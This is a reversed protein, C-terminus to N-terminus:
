FNIEATNTEENWVVTAGMAEAAARLPIYTRGGMAMASVDLERFNGNISYISSGIAFVIRQEASQLVVESSSEVWEVGYGLKEAVARIPILTREDMAAPPTDSIVKEGNILIKIEGPEYSLSQLFPEANYKKSPNESLVFTYIKGNKATAYVTLFYKEYSFGQSYLSHDARYVYYTTGNITEEAYHKQLIVCSVPLNNAESILTSLKGESYTADFADFFAQKTYAGEFYAKTKHEVVVDLKTNGDKSSFSLVGDYNGSLELGDPIQYKIGYAKDVITDAYVGSCIFLASIIVFLFIIIKRM